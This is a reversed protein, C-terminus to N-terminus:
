NGAIWEIVPDIQCPANLTPAHGVGEFELVDAHPLRAVMRSLMAPTLFDSREGRLILVPCRIRDWFAWLRLPMYSWFNRFNQAIRPDYHMTLVDGSRRCSQRAMEAWDADTMPGFSALTERLHGELEALSGFTTRRGLYMSVRARAAHPIEPAIDNIVLRRISSSELGAFVMGMLGGLSSGIWTFSELNLRATLVKADLNYQLINYGTANSLWGSRGRGVLDPCIVRANRSLRRALADFDRGNRTLGHVCLFREEARKEGWDRYAMRHFGGTSMCQVCGERPLAGDSQDPASSGGGKTCGCTM